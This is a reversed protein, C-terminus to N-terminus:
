QDNVWNRFEPDLRSRDERLQEVASKEGDWADGIRQALNEWRDMFAEREFAEREDRSMSAERSVGTVNGLPAGTEDVVTVREGESLLEPVHRLDREAVEVSITKPISM